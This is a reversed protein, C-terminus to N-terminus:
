DQGLRWRYLESLLPQLLYAAALFFATIVLWGGSFRQRLDLLGQLPARMQEFSRIAATSLERMKDLESSLAAVQRRLDSISDNLAGVTALTTSTQHEVAVLRDVLRLLIAEELGAPETM